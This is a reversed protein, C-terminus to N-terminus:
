PTVYLLYVLEDALPEFQVLKQYIQSTVKQAIYLVEYNKFKLKDSNKEVAM